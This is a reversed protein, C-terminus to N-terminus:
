PTKKEPKDKQSDGFEEDLLMADNLVAFKEFTPKFPKASVNAATLGIKMKTPLDLAFEHFGVVTEGGNPSFFCQVRGKRKVLILLTDKEPVDLYIPNMAQKGEKVAEIILRHVPTLSGIIISGARELRLFNDKDQYLILGASQVTFPITHGQRDKPTASGPSIEGTVEVLAAFDGEIETMTMPANHLSVKRNKRSTIEPSLTHLKGPIEIKIKLNDEDKTLTCDKDPDILPGLMNVSRRQAMKMMKQLRGTHGFSGKEPLDYERPRSYVLTGRRDRHATQILVKRAAAGEGSLTVQVRGSVLGTKADRQLEVAKTNPLPPWSGDSNPAITGASSAPAVHVVVGQVMGKPDVVQAKIELDATGKQGELRTGVVAGVRGALAKRLEEAPVVLGITDVPGLKAVVVGLLKGTKEDVVPGGSNGPQLSGDVQLLLIQGHDDRRLAAIRGGTITISPNGKSSAESVKGLMGGFPFGGANYTMGEMPEVKALPNIPTPPSKVGKVLLFALDNSFDGSQDAAIIQAPLAQEKQPQGSRFVAELEVTSGKPVLSPPLENVDFVAVHRNTAVIVTDGMVEIVFGTGSALTKGAVKNKIYVTAEKLRRAVEASDITSNGSSSSSDVSSTAVVPPSEPEVPRPSPADVLTNGGGGGGGAPGPGPRTALVVVTIIAVLAVGGVGLLGFLLPSPGSKQAAQGAAPSRRVGSTGIPPLPQVSELDGFASNQAAAPRKPGASPAPRKATGSSSQSAAKVDFTQGCKPCRIRAAQAGDPVSGKSQCSPCIVVKAV